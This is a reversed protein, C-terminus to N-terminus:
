QESTAALDASPKNKQASQAASWRVWRLSGASGWGAWDAAAGPWLKSIIQVSGSGFWKILLCFFNLFSTIEASNHSKFLKNCYRQFLIWFFFIYKKNGDHFLLVENCIRFVAKKMTKSRKGFVWLAPYPVLKLRMKKSCHAFLSSWM